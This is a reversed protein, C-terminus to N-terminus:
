VEQRPVAAIGVVELPYQSKVRSPVIERKWVPIVSIWLVIPLKRRDVADLVEVAIQVVVVGAIDIREVVLLAVEVERGVLVRARLVQRDQGQGVFGDVDRQRHIRRDEEADRFALTQSSSYGIGIGVSAPKQFAVRVVLNMACGAADYAGEITIHRYRRSGSE